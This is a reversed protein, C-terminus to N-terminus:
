NISTEYLTYGNQNSSNLKFNGDLSKSVYVRGEKDVTVFAIEEENEFTFLRDYGGVFVATALADCLAGDKGIVTVSLFDSEAPEATKSNFIHIYKKGDSEFFREYGGATSMTKGTLSVSGIYETKEGQPDRIGFRYDKGNEDKGIVALNGGISVYGKKIGFESAVDFVIKTAEGKLIGGLDIRQGCEKLFVTGNELDVDLGNIDCLEKARNKEFVSPIYPSEGTVNWLKTVSGILANYDCDTQISIEKARILVDAMEKPVAVPMLGAKENIKSIYSSDLHSSYDEEMKRLKKSMETAAEQANKGFLKYEIFTDMIFDTKIYPEEKLGCSSLSFILVLCLSIIIIDKFFKSCKVFM